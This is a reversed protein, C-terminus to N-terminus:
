FSTDVQKHTLKKEMEKRKQELASEKRFDINNVKAYDQVLNFGLEEVDDWEDCKNKENESDLMLTNRVQVQNNEMITEEEELEAEQISSDDYSTTSQMNEDEEEEQRFETKDNNKKLIGNTKMFSDYFRGISRRQRNNKENQPLVISLYHGHANKGIHQMRRILDSRAWRAMATFCDTRVNPYKEDTYKINNKNMYKVAMRQAWGQRIDFQGTTIIFLKEMFQKSYNAKIVKLLEQYNKINNVHQGNKKIQLKM